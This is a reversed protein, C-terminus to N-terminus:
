ATDWVGDAYPWTRGHSGGLSVTVGACSQAEHDGLTM